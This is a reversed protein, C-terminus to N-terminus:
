TTHAMRWRSSTSDYWFWAGGSTSLPQNAELPLLLRNAVASGVNEHGLTPTDTTGINLVLIVRGARGGAFGTILNAGNTDADLRQVTVIGTAVNNNEGAGLVVTRSALGIDGQPQLSGGVELSGDTTLIAAARRYLNTDEAGAGDGWLHKGDASVLFRFQADGTVDSLLITSGGAAKGVLQIAIDKLLVGDITVGAAGTRETILDTILGLVGAVRLSDDTALTNALSRFLNTDLAANGPGWWHTGSADMEHRQTTDGTVGAMIATSTAAVLGRLDVISDKLLVGDITVGAAGTRETIIDIKIGNAHAFEYLGTIVEAAALRALISGDTIQGELITLAAEHATVVAANVAAISAAGITLAAEHATVAAQPIGADKVLLGDITVGAAATREIIDDLSIGNLNAFEWLATITEPTNIRAVNAAPGVRM